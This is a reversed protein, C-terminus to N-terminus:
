TAHLEVGSYSITTLLMVTTYLISMVTDLRYHLSAQATDLRWVFARLPVVGLYQDILIRVGESASVSASDM